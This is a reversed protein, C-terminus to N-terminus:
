REKIKSALGKAVDKCKAPKGSKKHVGICGLNHLAEAWRDQPVDALPTIDIEAQRIYEVLLAEHQISYRPSTDAVEAIAAEIADEGDLVVVGEVGRFQSVDGDVVLRIEEGTKTNQWGSGCYHNRSKPNVGLPRKGTQFDVKVRIAKM